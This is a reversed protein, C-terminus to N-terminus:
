VGGFTGVWALIREVKSFWAHNFTLAPVLMACGFCIGAVAGITSGSIAMILGFLCFIAGVFAFGKRSREQDPYRSLVHM